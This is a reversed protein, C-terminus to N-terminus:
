RQVLGRIARLCDDAHQKGKWWDDLQRRILDVKDPQSEDRDAEPATPERCLQNMRDVWGRTMGDWQPECGDPRWIRDYYERCEAVMEADVEARTRLPALEARYAALSERVAIARAGTIVKDNLAGTFDEWKDVAEALARCAADSPRATM